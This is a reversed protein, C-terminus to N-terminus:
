PIITRPRPPALASVGSRCSGSAIAASPLRLSRLLSPDPFTQKASEKGVPGIFVTRYSTRPVQGVASLYILRIACAADCRGYGIDVVDLNSLVKYEVRGSGVRSYRGEM